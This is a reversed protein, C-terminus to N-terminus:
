CDNKTNRRSAVVGHGLEKQDVAGIIEKTRVVGQGREGCRPAFGRASDLAKEAHEGINRAERFGIPRRHDKIRRPFSEAM